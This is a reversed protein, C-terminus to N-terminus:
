PESSLPTRVATREAPSSARGPPVSRGVRPDAPDTRYFNFGTALVEGRARCQRAEIERPDLLRRRAREQEAALIALRSGTPKRVRRRRM